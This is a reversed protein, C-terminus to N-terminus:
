KLHTYGQKHLQKVKNNKHLFVGTNSDAITVYGIENIPTSTEEAVKKVKDWDSRSVTGLLEFDEGGFYKWNYQLEEPFQHYADNTPIWEDYLTIAVKSAECIESAENAIGDSIDNLAVRALTNLGTAFNVRPVPMQHQRIFHERNRYNGQNTLLHLGAQSDGLTGTVFVVDEAQAMSRYRAKGKEVFGIVTISIALETGSVTDGGILDIKYSKSLAKMGNFIQALDDKGWYKPIIISVLYFAPSAGMAALDSLNAALARYGIHFPEMTNKTFHIGEVFTDVATVIDESTQRIVAADDGIGKVLSSQRYTNQKISDIFLFEDM